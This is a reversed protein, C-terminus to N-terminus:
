SVKDADKKYIERIKKPFEPHDAFKRARENIHFHQKADHFSLETKFLGIFHFFRDSGRPLLKTISTPIRGPLVDRMHDFINTACTNTFLNYFEPKDVLKNARRLMNMFIKQINEIKVDLPYVYVEDQRFNSRLKVVDNEDAIVYMIEYRKFLAKWISFHGGRRRRAEVSIALHEKNKFGFSLFTHAGGPIHAFPVIIYYMSELEDLNYKKSYYSEMFQGDPGYSFNRINFVKVINEKTKSYPLIVQDLSWDRDNRPKLTFLVVAAVFLSIYFLHALTM